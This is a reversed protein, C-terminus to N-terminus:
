ALAMKTFLRLTNASTAGALEWSPVGRLEALFAATHAVFAPECVRGRVPVPALFPADTEVLLRDEPIRAAVAQLDKANRFTVIGSLSISGGLALARDALWQTGTFCHLLFPFAGKGMEEELIAVTDDEADRTHVVLPLQTKRAAAIHARFSAKQRARDSKDYYYDLGTEGIGVVKPHRAADVLRATDIDPHADAEHPHIGVTAFVDRHRGAGELIAPWESERTAISIFGGVGAARARGLVGAEDEVLGPYNLHCHSDILIGPQM